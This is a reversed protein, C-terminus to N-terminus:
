PFTRVIVSSLGFLYYKIHKQEMAPSRFQGTFFQPWLSSKDKYTDVKFIYMIGWKLAEAEQKRQCM